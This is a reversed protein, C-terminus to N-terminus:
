FNSLLAARGLAPGPDGVQIDDIVGDEDSAEEAITAMIDNQTGQKRHLRKLGKKKDFILKSLQTVTVLTTSVMLRVLNASIDAVQHFSTHIIRIVFYEDPVDM